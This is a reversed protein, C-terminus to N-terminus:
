WAVRHMTYVFIPKENKETERWPAFSLGMSRLPPKDEMVQDNQQLLAFVHTQGLMRNM